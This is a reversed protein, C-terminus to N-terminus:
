VNEGLSDRMSNFYVFAIAMVAAAFAASLLLDNGNPPVGKYFVNQFMAVLSAIPNFTVVFQLNSPVTTRSYFIPTLFFIATLTYAVIQQVDRFYVTAVAIIMSLGLTASFVILTLLPLFALAWAINAGLAAAVVIFLLITILFNVGNSLVPVLVLLEAPM